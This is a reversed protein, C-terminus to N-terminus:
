SRLSVRPDNHEPRQELTLARAQARAKLDDADRQGVEIRLETGAARAIRALLDLTPEMRGKEIRAITAPTTNARAAIERQSLGARRRIERCLGWAESAM